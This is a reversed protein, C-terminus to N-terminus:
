RYCDPAKRLRPWQDPCHGYIVKAGTAAALALLRAGHHRALDEDWSGAFGENVEAPRSIADAALLVKGTEPLDVMLALEGPAHGPVHFVALGPGIETDAEILLYRRDPWDFPQVDGWYLPKPLAREAASMLIPAQPCADMHGMHDIHTHTQIMLAIRDLATGALALQADPMNRPGCELVQGFSQLRDALTAAEPDEAYAKRFGTDVLIDEGKDTRILYGQIGVDRPGAHVRFLGYDLVYLAVPRGAIYGEATM